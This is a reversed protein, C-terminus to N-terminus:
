DLTARTEADLKANASALKGATRFHAEADELHGESYSEVGREAEYRYPSDLLAKGGTDSLTARLRYPNPNSTSQAGAPLLLWACIIISALYINENM